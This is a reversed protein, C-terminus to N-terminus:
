HKMLLEHHRKLSIWPMQCSKAHLDENYVLYYHFLHYHQQDVQTKEEYSIGFLQRLHDTDM